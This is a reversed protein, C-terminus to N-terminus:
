IPVLVCETQPSEVGRPANQLILCSRAEYSSEKFDVFNRGVACVWGDDFFGHGQHYSIIQPWNYQYILDRETGEMNSVACRKAREKYLQLQPGSLLKEFSREKDMARVEYVKGSARQRINQAIGVQFSGLVAHLSECISGTRQHREYM